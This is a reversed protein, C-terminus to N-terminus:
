SNLLCERLGISRVTPMLGLALNSTARNTQVVNETIGTITSINFIDFSDCQAVVQM